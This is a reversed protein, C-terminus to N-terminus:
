RNSTGHVHRLRHRTPESTSIPVREALPEERFSGQKIAIVHEGLSGHWGRRKTLVTGSFPQNKPSKRALLTDAPLCTGRPHFVCVLHTRCPRLGNSSTSFPPSPGFRRSAATSILVFGAGHGSRTALGFTSRSTTCRVAKRLSLALAPRRVPRAGLFFLKGGWKLTSARPHPLSRGPPERYGAPPHPM